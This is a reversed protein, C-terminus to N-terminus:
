DIITESVQGQILGSTIIQAQVASGGVSAIIAPTSLVSATITTGGATVNVIPTVAFNICQFDESSKAYNTDLVTFTGDTYVAKTVLYSINAIPVFSSYYIGTELEAMAASSLFIAVGTTNDYIKTLSRPALGTDSWTVQFSKRLGSQVIM